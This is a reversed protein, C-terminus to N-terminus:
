VAAEPPGAHSLSGRLLAAAILRHNAGHGPREVHFTGRPPGGYLYLDGMLDLLKHRAPEDKSFPRGASLISDSALVVISERPAHRALGRELIGAIEAEFAFTRAPAIRAIFDNADHEFAACPDLREDTTGLTVSVRSAGPRLLLRSRGAEVVDEHTVILTPARPSLGLAALAECWARAGGDLIPLEPGDVYVELGDRVSLGALASFFHEVTSLRVHGARDAVTTARTTDVVSLDDLAVANSGVRFSISGPRARLRVRVAAGTHLGRGEVAIEPKM